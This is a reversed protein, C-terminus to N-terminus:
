KGDLYVIVINCDKLTNKIIKKVIDADGGALDCGILGPLGVTKGAFIHNIKKMCLTLASYDLPKKTGDIHNTGYNYQTYCNVVTLDPEEDMLYKIGKSVISDKIFYYQYDIQGLKNIEGKSGIYEMLFKDTGFAKVMQPALGSKQTCFCNIGQAIVDFAGSLTMTILNGKVEKYNM